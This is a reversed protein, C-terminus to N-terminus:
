PQEANGLLEGGSAPGAVGGSVIFTMAESSSMELPTVAEAPFILLNGAFNYSQPFYVAVHGPLGIRELDDKTVFGLAKARLNDGLAVLVPRDFKKPEGVFAAVLDKISTYLIKVIPVKTFLRDVLGFMTRGVFNSASFGILTIVGLTAAVGLCLGLGRRQINFLGAFLGDLTTVVYVLLLITLGIPVSVLLGRLFYRLIRKM